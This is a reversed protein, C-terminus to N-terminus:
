FGLRVLHFRAWHLRNDFVLQTGSPLRQNPDDPTLHLSSAIQGGVDRLRHEEGDQAAQLIPLLLRQFDPVAVM